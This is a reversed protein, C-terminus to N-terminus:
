RSGASAADVIAQWVAVEEREVEVRIQAYETASLMGTHAWGQPGNIEAETVTRVHQWFVGCICPTTVHASYSVCRRGTETDQFDHGAIRM